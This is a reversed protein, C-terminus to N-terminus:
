GVSALKRAPKILQYFENKLGLENALFMLDEESTGTCWWLRELATLTRQIREKHLEVQQQSM